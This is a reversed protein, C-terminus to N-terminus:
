IHILSLAHTPNHQAFYEHIMADYQATLAFAKQALKKRLLYDVDQDNKIAAIILAYDQPDTVVSVWKFNKAAARVMTPGGVDIYEIADELALSNNQTAMAFPYFNVVVLDIWEIGLDKAEAAHEERKGLIGGHIKPHLTKVRGELIEQMGTVDEIQQHSINAAALAKSTGGTSIIQVSHDILTSALEILGTKDSVSILARKIPIPKMLTDSRCLFFIHSNYRSKILLSGRPECEFRPQM